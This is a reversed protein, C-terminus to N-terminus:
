LKINEGLENLEKKVKEYNAKIESLKVKRVKRSEKLNARDFIILPDQALNYIDKNNDDVMADWNEAMIKTYIRTAAFKHSNEMMHNFVQYAAEWDEKTKLNDLDVTAAKRTSAGTIKSSYNHMDNDRMAQQMWKLEKIPIDMAADSSVVKKFIDFRDKKSALKLDKDVTLTHEYVKHKGNQSIYKSFPGKYIETDHKNNPDWTYTWMKLRNRVAADKEKGLKKKRTNVTKLVTGKKLIEQDGLYKGDGSYGKPYPQYRRVGWHMGMVGHHSLYNAQLARICISNAM